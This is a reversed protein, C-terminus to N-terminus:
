DVGGGYEETFWFDYLWLKKDTKINHVFVRDKALRIVVGHQKAGSKKWSVRAGPKFADELASFYEMKLKVFDRRAQKTKSNDSM